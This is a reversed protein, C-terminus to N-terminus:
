YLAVEIHMFEIEEIVGGGMAADARKQAVAAALAADLKTVGPWDIQTVEALAMMMADRARPLGQWYVQQGVGKAMTLRPWFAYTRAPRRDRVATIMIADLYVYKRGDEAEMPRPLNTPGYTGQYEGRISKSVEGVDARQASAHEPTVALAALLLAVIAFGTNSMVPM